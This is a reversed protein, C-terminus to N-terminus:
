FPRHDIRWVPGQTSVPATDSLLRVLRLRGAIGEEDLRELARHVMPAAAGYGFRHAARFRFTQRDPLLLPNVPGLLLAGHEVDASSDLDLELLADSWDPPLTALTGTWQSALADAGPVAAPEAAPEAAPSTADALGLRAPVGAEDLRGLIRRTADPTPGGHSAPRATLHFTSGDRGPALSGLIAAARAAQAPDDVSLVLRVLRQDPALDRLIADFRETLRV